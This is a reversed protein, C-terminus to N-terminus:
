EVLKGEQSVDRILDSIEDPILAVDERTVGTAPSWVLNVQM